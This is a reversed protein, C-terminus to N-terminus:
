SRAVVDAGVEACQGRHLSQPWQKLLSQPTYNLGEALVTLGGTENLINAVPGAALALLRANRPPFDKDRGGARMGAQLSKWDM